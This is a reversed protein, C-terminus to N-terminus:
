LYFWEHCTSSQNKEMIKEAIRWWMKVDEYKTISKDEQWPKGNYYQQTKPLVGNLWNYKGVIWNYRQHIHYIPLETALLTEAILQEDFGSITRTNGYTENANLIALMVKMIKNNPQILVMCALGLIGGNFSQIISERPVVQGHKMEGYANYLGGRVYPQAWPSSFTLAPTPLNFLEDCNELFLMDADLLIVKDVPFLKEDFINWKTFSAHIWKGYINNQKKSKMQAVKHTILPVHIISDFQTKLFEICRISVGESVMCWIQYKTGVDRLSQAVVAAGCAYSDNLMVLTCWAGCFAM